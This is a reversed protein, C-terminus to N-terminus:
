SSKCQKIKKKPLVLRLHFWVLFLLFSSLHLWSLAKLYSLLGALLMPQSCSEWGHSGLILYLLHNYDGIDIICYLSESFGFCRRATWHTDLSPALLTLLRNNFSSLSRYLLIKFSSFMEVWFAFKLILNNLHTDLYWFSM